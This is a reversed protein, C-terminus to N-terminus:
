PAGVEHEEDIRRQHRAWLHVDHDDGDLDRMVPFQHGCSQIGALGDIAFPGQGAVQDLGLGEALEGSM